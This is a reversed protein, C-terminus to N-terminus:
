RGEFSLSSGRRLKPETRPNPLFAQCADCTWSAWRAKAASNLCNAYTQCEFRRLAAAEDGAALGRPCPRPSSSSSM